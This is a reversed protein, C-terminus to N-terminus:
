IKSIKALIEEDFLYFMSLSVVCDFKRKFPESTVDYKIFKLGPFLKLTEERCPQDLDSCTIDFGEEMLLLENICRGSGISLIENEKKLNQRLYDHYYGLRPHGNYFHTKFFEEKSGYGNNLNYSMSKEQLSYTDAKLLLSKNNEYNLIYKYWKRM